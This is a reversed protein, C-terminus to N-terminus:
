TSVAHTRNSLVNFVQGRPRSLERMTPDLDTDIAGLLQGLCCACWEGQDSPGNAWQGLYTVHGPNVGRCSCRMDLCKKCSASPSM